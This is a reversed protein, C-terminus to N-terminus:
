GPRMVEGAGPRSGRYASRVISARHVLVGFEISGFFFAALLIQRACQDPDSDRAEAGRQGKRDRTHEQAAAWGIGRALADLLQDVLGVVQELRKVFLSVARLLAAGTAIPASYSSAKVSKSALPWATPRDPPITTKQKPGSGWSRARTRMVATLGLYAM